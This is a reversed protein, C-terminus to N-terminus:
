TAVGFTEYATMLHEATSEWSLTEEVMKRGNMGMTQRGQPSLAALQRLGEAVSRVELEVTVCGGYAALKGAPDAGATVLCPKGMAAAELVSNPSGGEWRSPHAFVDTGALLDVKDQGYIAKVFIINSAIGLKHSLTKLRGEGGQHDPGVMLLLANEPRSAAFGQLLLDLGKHLPDLRGLFTFVLKGRAQPCLANLPEKDYRPQLAPDVGRPTSVVPASVGYARIADGDGWDHIFLARDLMQREFVLKYLFKLQRNRKHGFASLGGAPRVSYPIGQKYLWRAAATNAPTYVSHLHVIDPRWTRLNECLEGPLRMPFKLPRYAEVEVEPIPYPAKKTLSYIKVRAGQAALAQSLYYVTKEIGNATDPRPRGVAFHAVKM